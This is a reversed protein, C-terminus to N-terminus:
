SLTFGFVAQIWTKLSGKGSGETFWISDRSKRQAQHAESGGSAPVMAGDATKLAFMDDGIEKPSSFGMRVYAKTRAEGKGDDAHAATKIITGAPVSRIVADYAQKVKLAVEIQERRDKIQGVDFQGNINFNFGNTPSFDVAVTNGGKTKSSIIVGGFVGVDASMGKPLEKKLKEAFERNREAQQVRLENDELRAKKEAAKLKKNKKILEAGERVKDPNFSIATMGKDIKVDGGGGQGTKPVYAGEPKEKRTEKIKEKVKALSAKIKPPVAKKPEGATKQKKGAQTGKRCKGGTGYYTGDPRM